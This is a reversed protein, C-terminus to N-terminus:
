RGIAGGGVGCRWVEDWVEAEVGNGVDSDWGRETDRDGSREDVCSEGKFNFSYVRCM